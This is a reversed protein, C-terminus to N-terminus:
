ILLFSKVEEFLEESVEKNNKFKRYLRIKKQKEPEEEPFLGPWLSIEKHSWYYANGIMADQKTKVLMELPVGNSWDSGHGCVILRRHYWRRSRYTQFKIESFMPKILPYAAQYFAKENKIHCKTSIVVEMGLLDPVILALENLNFPMPDEPLTEGNSLAAIWDVVTNTIKRGRPPYVKLRPDPGSVWVRLIKRLISSPAKVRSRVNVSTIGQGALQEEIADETKLTLERVTQGLMGELERNVNIKLAKHIVGLLISSPSDLMRCAEDNMGLRLALPIDVNLMENIYSQKAHDCEFGKLRTAIKKKRRKLEMRLDRASGCQELLSECYNKWLNHKQPKKAYRALYLWLNEKHERSNKSDSVLMDLFSSIKLLEQRDPQKLMIKM